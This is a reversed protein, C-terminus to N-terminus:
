LHAQQDTLFREYAAKFEEPSQREADARLQQFGDRVALAGKVMRTSAQPYACYYTGGEM